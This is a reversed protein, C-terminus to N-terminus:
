EKHQWVMLATKMSGKDVGGPAHQESDPLQELVRQATIGNPELLERLLGTSLAFPPGGVKDCIPFVCTLLTGGPALLETQKSAWRQRVSPDLACLFTCDWIFDYKGGLAFFDGCEIDVKSAAAEGCDKLEQKAAVCATESLDVAVVKEFGHKALAVADYARGCGPVLARMGPKAAFTTRSLEGMLTASPGGVDFAQGKSLGKSWMAEWM